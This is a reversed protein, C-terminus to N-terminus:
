VFWVWVVVVELEWEEEEEGVEEDVEDVATEVVGEDVFGEVLWVVFPDHGGGVCGNSEVGYVAPQLGYGVM